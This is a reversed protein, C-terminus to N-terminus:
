AGAFIRDFAKVAAAPGEAHAWVGASAAIFDAGAEVLPRCNSPTLGGVAVCPIEMIETWWRVIEVDALQASQKTTSPFFPGFSVYDAGAEAAEIAVHRIDGASVGVTRAGGMLRRADAYDSEADVHVGDCGLEAALDARADLLFAVGSAQVAPMLREVARRVDDDSAGV